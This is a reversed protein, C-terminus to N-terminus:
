FKGSTSSFGGSKRNRSGGKESDDSKKRRTETTYAFCDERVSLNLGGEVYADAETAAAVSKMKGNLILITIGAIALPILVIGGVRMTIAEAIEEDSMPRNGTSYPQGKEAAELYKGSWAIYDSFGSYWSDEAFDDLFFQTLLPRGEDNFAYNGMDGYTVLSYDRDDMSLLLLLGDKGEGLGLSYEKYIEVAADEIYTDAESVYDRYDDVVAFYVGVGYRDSIEEAQLELSQREEETLIGLADTAYYLRAEEEMWAEGAFSPVALGIMLFLAAAAAYLKRKM